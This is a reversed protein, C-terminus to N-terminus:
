SPPIQIFPSTGLPPPVPPPTVTPEPILVCRSGERMFGSNCNVTAGGVSSTFRPCSFDNVRQFDVCISTTLTGGSIRTTVLDCDFPKCVCQESLSGSDPCFPILEATGSVQFRACDVPLPIVRGNNANIVFGCVQFTGPVNPAFLTFRVSVVSNPDKLREIEGSSLSVQSIHLPNSCAGLGLDGLGTCDADRYIEVSVKAPESTLGTKGFFEIFFENSEGVGIGAFPVTAQIPTQVSFLKQFFNLEKSDIDTIVIKFEQGVVSSASFVGMLLIVLIFFYPRM